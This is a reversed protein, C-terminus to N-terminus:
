AARRDSESDPVHNQLFLGFAHADLPRSIFYGQVRDVSAQKLLSMRAGSEIGEVVISRGTSKIMEIAHILLRSLLSDEAALAFSRDLKVGEVPFEALTQINAYARGFDDIYTLIGARRLTDIERCADDPSVTDSEVLEIAITFRAAAQRFPTLVQQIWGADLDRPFINFNVEIRRTSPVNESLETYARGVVLETFRRTLKHKEVIPLFRDPTVITGDVDRWRALAECAVIRGSQLDLIPQYVCQITDANLRRRFRAEFSWYDRLLREVFSAGFHAIAMAALLIMAVPGLHHLLIGAATAEAVFCHVNGGACVTRYFTGGRLFADEPDSKALQARAYVGRNGGRHWEHGSSDIAVLQATMWAPVNLEVMETPLIIAFPDALAITGTLGNLGLFDLSRGIWAVTGNDSVLDPTGLPLPPDFRAVNASCQVVGGPAYLFENFGDPRYAIKRLQSAFEPSCPIATAETRLHVLTERFRQGLTAFPELSTAAAQTVAKELQAAVIAGGIGLAALFVCLWLVVFRVRGRREAVLLRLLRSM